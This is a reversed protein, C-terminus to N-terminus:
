PTPGSRPGATLGAAAPSPCAQSVLAPVASPTAPHSVAGGSAVFAAAFAAVAAIGGCVLVWLDNRHGTVGAVPFRAAWPEGSFEGIGGGGGEGGRGDTDDAGGGDRNGGHHVSTGRSVPCFPGVRPLMGGHAYRIRGNGPGNEPGPRRYAAMARTLDSPQDPSQEANRM